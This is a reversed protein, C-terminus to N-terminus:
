ETTAILVSISRKSDWSWSEVQDNAQHFTLQTIEGGTAPMIYVDNNGYQNSTFAIWNGDPSINPNTEEGDMATLRTAEGGNKSTIWIDTDFTFAIKDNAISPDGLFLANQAFASISFLVLFLFSSTIRTIM